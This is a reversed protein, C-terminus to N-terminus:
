TLMFAGARFSTARMGIQNRPFYPLVRACKADIGGAVTNPRWCDQKGTGKAEQACIHPLGSSACWLPASLSKSVSDGHPTDIGSRLSATVTRELM